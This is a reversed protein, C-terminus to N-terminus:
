WTTYWSLYIGDNWEMESFLTCRLPGFIFLAVISVELGWRVSHQYRLQLPTITNGALKLVQESALM